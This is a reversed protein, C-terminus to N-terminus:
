VDGDGDEGVPYVSAWMAVGCVPCTIHMNSVEKKVYRFVSGCEPCISEYIPVPNKEVITM